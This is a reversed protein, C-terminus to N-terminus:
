AAVLATLTKGCTECRFGPAELGPANADEPKLRYVRQGSLDRGSYFATMGACRMEGCFCRGNDGLYLRNVDLTKKMNRVEQV